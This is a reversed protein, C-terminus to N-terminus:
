FKSKLYRALFLSCIGFTILGRKFGLLMVSYIAKTVPNKILPATYHYIDENEIKVPERKTKLNSFVFDAESNLSYSILISVPSEKVQNIGDLKSILSKIHNKEAISDFRIRIRGPIYSEIKM